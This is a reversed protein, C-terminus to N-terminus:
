YPYHVYSKQDHRHGRYKQQVIFNGYKNLALPNPKTMHCTEFIDKLIFFHMIANRQSNRIIVFDVLKAIKM